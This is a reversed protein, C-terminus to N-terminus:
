QKKQSTIIIYEPLFNCDIQLFRRDRDEVEFIPALLNKMFNPLKRDPQMANNGV